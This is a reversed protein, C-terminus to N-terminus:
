EPLVPMITCRCNHVIIGDAFYWGASTELNFVHGAFPYRVIRVVDDFAIDASFAFLRDSFRETDASLWDAPNKTLVSNHNASARAGHADSHSPGPGILSAPESSRGIGGRSPPRLRILAQRLRGDRTLAHSDPNAGRLPEQYGLKSLTAQSVGNGLLSAAGVVDVDGNFTDGHFDEPATPVPVTLVASAGGLTVAVEEILAPGHHHDPDVLRTVREPRRSHVVKDGVHIEGAAVWGNAALIPHNPTVTLEHGTATVIHVVDGEYWRASSAQIGTAHVLTGAPFCNPHSDRMPLPSAEDAVVYPSDAEFHRCIRSVRNDNATVYDYREIGQQLLLQRKGEVQAWAIESRALREWNYDGAGFRRRLQRAVNVPNQGDFEGAMLAAVIPQQYQRAMGGRVLALGRAAYHDRQRALARDIAGGVPDSDLDLALNVAANLMGRRWAAVQGRTLPGTPAAMSRATTESAALLMPLHAPDFTFVDEAPSTLGLLRIVLDRLARWRLLLGAATLQEILGLRAADEAWNEGGEGDEAKLTIMALHTAQEVSAGARLHRYALTLATDTRHM